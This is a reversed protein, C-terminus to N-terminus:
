DQFLSDDMLIGETLTGTGSRCHYLVGGADVTGKGLRVQCDPSLSQYRSHVLCIAGNENWNAEFSFGGDVGADFILGGDRADYLIIQTRDKTYTVGDGCYDARVARICANFRAIRNARVSPRFGPTGGDAAPWLMCKGIAGLNDWKEPVNVDETEVACAFTLRRIKEPTPFTMIGVSPRGDFIYM